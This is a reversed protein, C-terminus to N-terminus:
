KSGQPFFLFKMHDRVTETNIRIPIIGVLILKALKNHQKWITKEINNLM